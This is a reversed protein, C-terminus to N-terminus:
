LDAKTVRAITLVDVRAAGASKLARACENLTAGTTFVDDVLLVNKGAVDGDVAFASQVNEKRERRTLGQQPATNRKRSLLAPTYIKGAKRAIERALLASQNYRRRWLRKRHLPVPAVMDASGVFDRGARLLWPTFTHVAHLQDGHKFTLILGRGADNYVLSARARDFAPEQEM